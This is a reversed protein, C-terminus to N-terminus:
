KAKYADTSFTKPRTMTESYVNGFRDTVKIELTSTASSPKVLFFHNWSDTTFSPSDSTLFRKASLAIMHLPDYQYVPTVTLAKGGETVSVTWDSDYNWINLLVDNADYSKINSVYTNWKTKNGGLDSTMVKKVENMDYSRFQYSKDYGASKYIWSFDTGKVTLVTYGGPAGDQAINVGPTLHGSWWWSGCVSGANHEFINQSKNDYNFTKHTHGTFIHVKYGSLAAVLDETNGEGPANAGSLGVRWGTAGNPRYVPAHTSLVIPTDKSVYSLDKKLWSMQNATFDTVYDGRIGTGAGVDNFDIDDMVIFHVKGINYSYYTPTLHDRYPQEKAFDGIAQYDNDHNGMTHFFQLDTFYGNMLDVYQSFGFNNSYWYLDWTMDGLTLAYKKGSTSSINNKLDTIYSSFQSLDGTRNALHMDGLIYLTFNDNSTKTLTFDNREATAVPSKLPQWFVPLFGESQAEYGSPITMFVYGYSKDSNLYYVGKSDTTTINVGDSVMVGAVPSTGDTILGYVNYGDKIEVDQRQITTVTVTGITKELDGRRIIFNYRGSPMGSPYDFAFSGSAGSDVRKIAATYETGDTLSKFVVVDTSLPGKGSYFNFIVEDGAGASVSSQLSVQLDLTEVNEKGNDKSCSAFLVATALSLILLLRRKM